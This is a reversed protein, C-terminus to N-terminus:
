VNEGVMGGCEVWRMFGETMIKDVGPSTEGESKGVNVSIEVYGIEKNCRECVPVGRGNGVVSLIAERNDNVNLLGM